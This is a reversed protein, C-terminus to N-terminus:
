DSTKLSRTKMKSEIEKITAQSEIAIIREEGPFLNFFNDEFLVDVNEASLYVGIALDGSTVTVYKKGDAESVEYAIDSEPLELNKFRDFFFWSESVKANDILLECKMFVDKKDMKKLHREVNVRKVNEVGGAPIEVEKTEEFIVKGNFGAIRVHIAAAVAQPIDSVVMLIVNNGEQHGSILVPAFARRAYYYLAKKRGFYDIASWSAVPWCDNIQWFLSGMNTPKALRHGELAIKLGEAQLFQSKYLLDDFNEVPPLYQDLYHLITENGISSRQHAKMVESDIQWDSSDSFRNITEREPFSQFGFESMFRGINELYNEFPEKNWWVGWYHFDGSNLDPFGGGKSSPSTEWYPAGKHYKMVQAPLIRGFIAEYAQFITDAYVPDTWWGAENGGHDLNQKWQEWIALVENNGCWLAISPHNRLRVINEIAEKEVNELFTSNGPYMACSFMFDQWVLLGLEDCLDYFIDNEYVGGGWVRIMNMNADKASQLIHRYKENTVRPLFNDQPIYNAGKMFMRVGNVRFFFSTGKRDDEEVLEITRLGIKREAQAVIKASKKIRLGVRYRRQAGFGNPWWLEPNGIIVSVIDSNSGYEVDIPKTKVIQDDIVVELEGIFARSADMDFHLNLLVQQKDLSEQEVYLDRIVVNNWARLRVPRWLGSTVFRPGWDWGFHYAAKRSFPSLKKEAQDNDTVPLTYALKDYLPETIKIPSHFYITLENDGKRAINNIDVSWSRYMNDTSLIRVGNLSVDAYTDLGEFLLEIRDRALIADDIQFITKYEWDEREIWQQDKENTGYFPDRIEGNDLLDTHVTGPVTAKMWTDAGVKRFQWGDALNNEILQSLGVNSIM